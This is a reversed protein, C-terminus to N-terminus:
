GWGRGRVTSCKACVMKNCGSSRETPVACRPNPCTKFTKMIFLADAAAEKVVDRRWQAAEGCTAPRHGGEAKCSFCFAHGRACDVDAAGGGGSGGGRQSVV